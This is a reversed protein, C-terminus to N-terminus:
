QDGSTDHGCHWCRRSGDAHIAHPRPRQEAPCLYFDCGDAEGSEILVVADVPTHKSSESPRAARPRVAVAAVVVGLAAAAELVYLASM